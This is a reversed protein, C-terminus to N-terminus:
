LEEKELFGERRDGGWGPGVSTQGGVGGTWEFSRQRRCCRDAEYDESRAGDGIAKWDGKVQKDKGRRFM